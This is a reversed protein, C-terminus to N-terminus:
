LFRRRRKKTYKKINYYFKTNIDYITRENSKRNKAAEAYTKYKKVM